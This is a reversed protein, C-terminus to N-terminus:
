RTDIQAVRSALRVWGISTPRRGTSVDALERLGHRAGLQTEDLYASYVDQTAGPRVNDLVLFHWGAKNFGYFRNSLGLVEVAWNKGYEPEDGTAKSKKKNWGWIDHNGICPQFPISCEAKLVKKWVEWQLATRAHTQEFGDMICVGGFLILDPKDKLAQVHRLCAIMGEDARLEPQVHVDTLHAVRIARKRENALAKTPWGLGAAGALGAAAQLFKRRGLPIAPGDRDTSM